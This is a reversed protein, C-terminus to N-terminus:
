ASPVNHENPVQSNEHKPRLAPRYHLNMTWKITWTSSSFASLTGLERNITGDSVTQSRNAIYKEVAAVDIDKIANESFAELLPKCAHQVREFGRKRQNVELYNM